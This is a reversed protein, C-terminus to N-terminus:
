NATRRRRGIGTARSVAPITVKRPPVSGSNAPRAQRVGQVPSAPSGDSPSGASTAHPAARALRDALAAAPRDAVTRLRAGVRAATEPLAPVRAHSGPATGDTRPRPAICDEPKRLRQRLLWAHIRRYKVSDFPHWRELGLATISYVIPVM